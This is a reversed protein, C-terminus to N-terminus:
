ITGWPELGRMLNKEQVESRAVIEGLGRGEVISLVHRKLLPFKGEKFFPLQSFIPGGLGLEWFRGQGRKKWLPSSM